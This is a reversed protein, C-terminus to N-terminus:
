FHTYVLIEVKDLTDNIYIGTASYETVYTDGSSLNHVCFIKNDETYITLIGLNTFAICIEGDLDVSPVLQVLGCTYIYNYLDTGQKSCTEQISNTKFTYM